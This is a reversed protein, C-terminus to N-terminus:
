HIPHVSLSLGLYTDSNGEYPTTNEISEDVIQVIQQQASFEIKHRIDQTYEPNGVVAEISATKQPNGKWVWELVGGGRRWTSQIDGACSRLLSIADILNSKGSGNAGILINLPRLPLPPTDPGFSLLNSLQIRQLALNTHGSDDKSVSDSLITDAM